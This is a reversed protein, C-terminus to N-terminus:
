YLNNYIETVRNCIDVINDPMHTKVYETKSITGLSEYTIVKDYNINLNHLCFNNRTIMYISRIIVDDNIELSYNKTIENSTTWWKGRMFSIYSSVISAIEDQRYLKIKFCNSNLLASYPTLKNIQDPMFKLIYKSDKSHYHDYFDQKVGNVHPGWKKGRTEPTHWPELYYPVDYLNSLHTAYVTSGSRYNAVIIVPWKSIEINEM